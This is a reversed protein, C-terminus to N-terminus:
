SRPLTNGSVKIKEKHILSVMAYITPEKIPLVCIVFIEGLFVQSPVIPPIMRQVTTIIKIPSNLPKSLTSEIQMDEMAAM